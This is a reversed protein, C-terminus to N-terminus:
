SAEVRIPQYIVFFLVYRFCKGGLFRNMDKRRPSNRDQHMVQHWGFGSATKIDFFTVLPSVKWVVPHEVLFHQFIHLIWLIGLSFLHHKNFLGGYMHFPKINGARTCYYNFRNSRVVCHQVTQMAIEETFTTENYPIKASTWKSLCCYDCDM